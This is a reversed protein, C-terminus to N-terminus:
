VDPHAVHTTSRNGAQPISLPRRMRNPRGVCFAETKSRKAIAVRNQQDPIGASYLLHLHEALNSASNARQIPRTVAPEERKRRQLIPSCRSAPLDPCEA